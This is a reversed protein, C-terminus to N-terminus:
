FQKSSSSSPLFNDQTQPKSLIQQNLQKEINKLIKKGFEQKSQDDGMLADKLYDRRMKQVSMKFSIGESALKGTTMDKFFKNIKAAKETAGSGASGKIIALFEGFEIMNSGDEDVAAIMEMVEERNEALGLGILPDELEDIGIAGSGDTDM